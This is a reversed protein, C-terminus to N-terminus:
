LYNKLLEYMLSLEYDDIVINYKLELPHFINKSISFFEEKTKDTSPELGELTQDESRSSIMMREIMLAIHMYLNLKIKAEFVIGFFDQYKKVVAQVENIVIKPNLFQLRGSIGEITFFELLGEMLNDIARASEGTHTLLEKLQQTGSTEMIDYINIIPIEYSYPLDTTTIIFDTNEFYQQDHSALSSKLDRYEMTIIEKDEKLTDQMIRKIEESLGVGSMCSVIINKNQSIGEYYQIHIMEHYTNAREAIEKFSKHQQVQLAIDLVLPTSLNNIVLLDTELYQKVEKYMQSLSGMDFLLVVPLDKVSIEEIYQQLKKSIDLVSEELPMDFAAFVFNGVLGNVVEQTSSATSRGHSLLIGLLDISDVAQVAEYDLLYVGIAATLALKEKPIDSLGLLMQKLLYASRPYAKKVKDAWKKTTETMTIAATNAALWALPVTLETTFYNKVGYKRWIVETLRQSLLQQYTTLQLGNTESVAKKLYKAVIFQGDLFKTEAAILEGLLEQLLEQNLWDFDELVTQEPSFRIFHKGEGIKLEAGRQESYAEACLLKIRNNLSGLNGPMDENILSVILEDAAEINKEMRKAEALFAHNVLEFREASPREIYRPIEVTMPVRRRFTLLLNDDLSETTAFLFRVTATKVENSGLPSYIGQDLLTFLKEQNDKPLRHIEDLFLFGGDAKEVLGATDKEAGTFAGKKFGFLISSLLEPNNAYDACNLSVLMADQQIIENAQAYEYILSALFSKGVGSEGTIILPFGHPPYEVSAKCDRIVKKLSGQGGIFKSFPDSIQKTQWYVPKTGYKEVLGENRLQSLYHSVVGRSLKIEEAIQNTTIEQYQQDEFHKIVNLVEYRAKIAM